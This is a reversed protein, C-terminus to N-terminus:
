PYFKLIRNVVEEAREPDFALLVILIRKSIYNKGM